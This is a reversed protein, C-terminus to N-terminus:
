STMQPHNLADVESGIVLRVLNYHAGGKTIPTHTHTNGCKVRFDLLKNM